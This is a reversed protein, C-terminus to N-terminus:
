FQVRYDVGINTGESPFGYVTEYKEDSLNKAFLNIQHRNGSIKFTHGISADYSVFDGAMGTGAKNASLYESMSRIGLNFQWKATQYYLRARVLNEPVNVVGSPTEEPDVRSLGLEYGYAGQRGKIELELGRNQWSDADYINIYSAPDQPDVIQGSVYAGDDLNEIFATLTTRFLQHWVHSWGLEGRLRKEKPLQASNQSYVGIPQQETYLSRFSLLDAPTPNYTAGLAATLLDDLAVDEIIKKQTGIQEYGKDIHRRDNRFGFDVSFNDHRYEDQLYVSHIHEKREYGPYYLMGTPNHYFMFNYGLRLTNGAQKWAHSIDLNSFRERTAEESDAAPNQYSKKQLDADSESYSFRVATTNHEDWYFGAQSNIMRIQLPDYEWRADSVGSTDLGRQLERSGDAHFFNIQWDFKEHIGELKWLGATQQYGNEYGAPGDKRETGLVARAYLNENLQLAGTANAGAQGFNALRAHLETKPKHTASLTKIVVFGETRSSTMPGIISTLPGLNLASADRVITMSEIATVPLQMLVKSAAPPPLYAGDIIIGLNSGARISAFYPSKRGQTQIFAGTAYDLMEYANNIPLAQFDERQFTQSNNTFSKPQSYVDDTQIGREPLVEVADLREAAIAPLSLLACSVGLTALSTLTSHTYIKHM